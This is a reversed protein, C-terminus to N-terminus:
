LELTKMKMKIKTYGAFDRFLAKSDMKAYAEIEGNGEFENLYDMVHAMLEIGIKGVDIADEGESDKKIYKDM